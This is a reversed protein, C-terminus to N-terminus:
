NGLSPQCTEMRLMIAIGTGPMGPKGYVRNPIISFLLLKNKAGLWGISLPSHDVLLKGVGVKHDAAYAGPM